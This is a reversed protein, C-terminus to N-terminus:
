PTKISRRNPEMSVKVWMRAKVLGNYLSIYVLVLLVIIVIAIILGM